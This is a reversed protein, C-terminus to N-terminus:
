KQPNIIKDSCNKNKIYMIDKDIKSSVFVKYKEKLRIRYDMVPAYCDSIKYSAVLSNYAQIFQKKQLLIDAKQVMFYVDFPYDKQLAFLLQHASSLLKEIDEKSIDKRNSQIFLYDIIKKTNKVNYVSISSTPNSVFYRLFIKYNDNKIDVSSYIPYTLLSKFLLDSSVPV